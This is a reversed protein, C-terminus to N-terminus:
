PVHLCCLSLGTLANWDPDLSKRNINSFFFFFFAVKYAFQIFPFKWSIPPNNDQVKLIYILCVVDFGVIGLSIQIKASRVHGFAHKQCQPWFLKTKIEGCSYIYHARM